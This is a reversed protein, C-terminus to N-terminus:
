RFQYTMVAAVAVKEGGSSRWRKLVYNVTNTDLIKSGSSQTVVANVVRGNEDFSVKIM